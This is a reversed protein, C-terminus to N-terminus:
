MAETPPDTPGGNDNERHVHEDYTDRMSSMTRGEPSDCRDKIEGTCELMPTEARLKPTDTITVPLGAGKIVIGDRTLHVSQGLDDYIAVEGDEVPIRYRADAIRLVVSRSRNGALCGYVVEAGAHARSTFGYDHMVERNEMDEGAFGGHRARLHNGESLALLVGRGITLLVRTELPAILAKMTRAIDKVDM